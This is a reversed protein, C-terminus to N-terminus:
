KRRIITKESYSNKGSVLTVVYVGSKWDTSIEVSQNATVNKTLLLQGPMNTIRLIGDEGPNLNIRILLTEELRSITFLKEPETPNYNPGVLSMVLAFRQDTEGSNLYFRYKPTRRLDQYLKNSKDELYITYESPLKSLDTAVINIWGEKLINIGIPIRTLSDVPYPIGSISLQYDKNAIEYLNPVDSDTNMLKLADLNKDFNRTAMNDLYLIFPDPIADKQDFSASFIFIPRTDIQSSKFSPNPDTIRVSNSFGLAGTVPFSGDTVHVFFGQMAPIINIGSPSGVGNVYSYYTGDYENTASFFYIADDINTKTWGYSAIWDIPSPYPNGVLNFGKTYIKHNNYLPTLTLTGNNVNGTIEITQVSASASPGFNVAYGVMPQLTGSLYTTWGTMDAGTPSLHNENYLYFTPFTAGLNMYSGFASVTANQFPSSFYKYGFLNTLYRQMKVNGSVTGTGTGDILATQSATSVLTLNGGSSLDGATTSVIGTINLPGSLTVGASNNVTLNMITNGDFTGAPISQASSGKMEITGATATFAGSNSIAGAIQLIKNTVTVSSSNQITLDKCLGTSGTSLTPYKLKGTAILVNTTLSPLQKCDWNNLTNWDTNVSGNWSGDLNITASCTTTIIGCGGAAAITYTVTYIGPTSSTTTIAGTGANISLGAPTASYSGGATGTQSVSGVGFNSCFPSGPYSITAAPLATITLSSTATVIGCGGAAAITNTVIYTGATSTALNIQGTSTSVFNLGATSSFTGAVGGGSFTPFPNSASSCYPTGTYSFTAKPLTTITVSSTATVQGCGGAAALTYTVTYAGATSTSPTIAGTGSDITLGDPSATYTGGATGTRTVAQATAVSKCFPTGSYSITATPLANVNVTRDAIATCGVNNTTLRLTVTGSYNAAPTYTVTAPTGTQLYSSLSGGGSIVSWAGTTATGGVSAGSLTIPSPSASICVNDPGGATATPGGSVTITVATTYPSYCTTGGSVSKTRRQYSTTATLAPPTYTAATAGGITVYSGSANTQWEYSITGSGTGATSSTLTAPTYGSCISQTSGIVGATVVDNVTVVVSATSECAQQFVIDDLAFDNGQPVTNQNVLSLYASTSSGSNWNYTFQRWSNTALAATYVPGAPSGNIYLQLQSPNQAYVSQVWYTYQYNTNQVVNVTQSWINVNAVTAGNVVMQLSGSHSVAAADFSSHVSNPNNVVTYLGEPTLVNTAPAVYGYSSGFGVNGSEFGSNSILNVGSLGSAKVTYTGSNLSTANTIAPPNQLISYFSSPGTWYINTFNSGSSTLTVTSGDCFTGGGSPTITPPTIISAVVAIRSSICSGDTADVYYTTTTSLSPTTYTTSTALSSGGSAASYWNITGASATAGLVVTGAGCRSGSFGSIIPSGITAIAAVRDRSISWNYFYDYRTTVVGGEYSSTISGVNFGVPWTPTNTTSLNMSGATKLIRYGSGAPITWNLNVTQTGATPTLSVDSVGTVANGANDRLGITISSATGSAYIVVSNLVISESLDFVLGSNTTFPNSSSTTLGVTFNEQAYYTTTASISPTTFSTGTKLSSGGTLASFWSVTSTICSSPTATLTVTGTGCHSAPPISLAPPVNISVPGSVDSTAVYSCTGTVVCYYYLTGIATTLPTYSASTAGALLTGGSNSNSTNSYWQYSTGGTASVSFGSVSGNQCLNQPTTSPQVTIAPGAVVTVALTQATGSGCANSPTVTINGSSSGSTVTISNTTGGGTQSWGSPFSWTYTVGTGNTVSYTLGAANACPAASGTIAGPQAPVAASVTIDTGNDSGTIAPNTSVIRIRYGTGVPTAPPITVNLSQSGTGNSAVSQLNVPAGFSGTADSLQATFNASAFGSTPSYTFPVSVGTAGACFPSGNITITNLIYVIFAGSVGSTIASGCTGSVICYYYLTGAISTQPTYSSTQAGNGSGLSTGGTTSASSNSYWQYSLGVGTATVSIPTFTGGICQSQAGTSQSSIATALNVSMTVNQTFAKNCNPTASTTTIGTIQLIQGNNAATLAASTFSAAGSGNAVVGTVATQAVSNISYAVTSTSSALLGTLNITAASGACVTAAQSAGSLTPLANVTLTAVNSENTAIYPNPAVNNTSSLIANRFIYYTGPTNFPAVSVDPTYIAGTAGTINTRVGAPTTSYSWQYGTGSLTIGAPLAGYIDGSIATGTSGVCINQTLNATLNNALVLSQTPYQFYVENGGGNEYFDYLLSSNGTLSMLVNPHANVIHDGWDAYILNGDVTLRGGDDSGVNVVYLGKKTSNMRYRVSFTETYISRAISNSTFGFCTKDGGFTEDFAEAKPYNGYYNTFAGNYAVGQNTGDYVHGIWSDTGAANQNDGSSTPYTATVQVRSSECGYPNMITVWYSTTAGIVPTTYTNVTNDASTYLPTGGSADSYWNYKQGSVAGSALLTTGSVTGICIYAGTTTPASPSSCPSTSVNLIGTTAAFYTDNHYTATTATTSGWTGNVAGNGGLTLTGVKITQRAAISATASGTPAISLNGTVSTGTTISKAGSGMLTLNGPYNVNNVTQNGLAYYEITGGVPETIAGSYNSAWTAGGVRLTGATFTRTAATLLFTSPDFTGATLTFAGGGTSIASGLTVIGSTKNVILAGAPGANAIKGSLTQDGTGNMTVSIADKTTVTGNFTWDGTVNFVSPTGGATITGTGSVNGNITFSGGSGNTSTGNIVLGGCIINNIGRALTGGSNITITGTVTWSSAVQTMVDGTQIIFIDGATTFNAPHTGGGTTGTWWNTLTEPAGNVNTYYTTQAKALTVSFLLIVVLVMAKISLLFQQFPSVKSNLLTLPKSLPTSIEETSTLMRNRFSAATQNRELIAFQGFNRM